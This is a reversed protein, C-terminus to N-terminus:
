PKLKYSLTLTKLPVPLPENGSRLRNRSGVFLPVPSAQMLWGDMAANCFRPAERVQRVAQLKKSVGVINPDLLAATRKSKSNYDTRSALCKLRRHM